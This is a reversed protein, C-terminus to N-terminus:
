SPEEQAAATSADVAQMIARWGTGFPFKLQLDGHADILYVFATHSMAYGAGSPSDVRAYRVGYGDAATKIASPSGSVGIFGPPMYRTWEAMFTPTDREPDITVFVVRVDPRKDAVQILEGITAPCVDPCHTYGFFVLTPHGQLGALDFPKDGVALADLPPATVGDLIIPTPGPTTGPAASPPPAATAINTAPAVTAASAPVASTPAATAPVASTPAATAPAVSGPAAPTTPTATPARTRAPSNGVCGTSVAAIVLLALATSQTRSGM